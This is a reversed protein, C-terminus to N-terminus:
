SCRLGAPPVTLDVLYASGADDVCRNGQLFATHQTAEYTLLGGGLAKALNVGAQYPTAPDGTTSVVLVPPLGQIQPVHPQSTNPAPWFACADLAPSAPKGDDLFPAAQKYRQQAELVLAKDTVRPDDVCRVATFADQTTSYHGNQDREFYTDALMMLTTARQRKLESLGNNLTEWLEEAYLSQIVGTTADSYSLKRGNEGTDLPRDILPRLLDWYGQLVRGQDQGLACDQRKVCWQTFADFAKQFGEGQAVLEDVVNQDPDLAGDLVLARVNKPFTEAYMSGLRTGYSYGIYTLKEDGLASRLVDMDKAVDRSGMNALMEVGDGTRQVCKNAYDRQEAEVRAVGEPSSDLEDDEAREADREQDTLCRIAPESSGIGRPDFGVFDFRKGLESDKAQGALRIASTLGSAGPGGPNVLVSGIRRDQDKAQVRLIGITITAGDPKAYDLPVTLRTCRADKAKLTSEDSATQAFRVCDGWTLSQGYFRELGAPVTGTPGRQETFIPAAPAGTSSTCAALAAVLM